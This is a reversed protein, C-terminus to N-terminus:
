SLVYGVKNVGIIGRRLIKIDVTEYPSRQVAGDISIHNIPVHSIEVRTLPTFDIGMSTLVEEPLQYDQEVLGFCTFGTDVCFSILKKKGINYVVSFATGILSGLLYGVVPLEFGLAQGIIGGINAGILYGGSVVVSDILASGMERPQMKGAAVLISNKITQLTISVAVGLFTPDIGKLAPGFAGKDCLSKLTCAVSGRLFGEASSSLAVTGVRKVQNMDLEGTKILYDIAKFFEPATQMIMTVAAASLGAKAAQKMIYQSKIAKEASVGHKELDLSNKRRERALEVSEDKRLSESSVKGDSVRDTATDSTHRYGKAWPEPTEPNSARTDAYDKVQDLQDSPVLPIQKEYKLSGTNPNPTSQEKATIKYNQDFKSSYDVFTGDAKTVRVDVSGYNNRGLVSDTGPRGAVAKSASGAAAANVNFTGAFWEEALFGGLQEDTYGTSVQMMNRRCQEIAEEVKAVYSHASRASMDAGVIKAAFEWGREIDNKEQMASM